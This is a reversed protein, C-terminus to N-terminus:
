INDYVYFVGEQQAKTTKTEKAFYHKAVALYSADDEPAARILWVEWAPMYTLM